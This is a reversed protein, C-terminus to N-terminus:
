KSSITVASSNLETEEVPGGTDADASAQKDKDDSVPEGESDSPSVRVTMGPQRDDHGRSANQGTGSRQMGSQDARQSKSSTFPLTAGDNSRPSCNGLDANTKIQVIRGSQTEVYVKGRM